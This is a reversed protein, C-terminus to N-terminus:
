NISFKKSLCYFISNKLFGHREFDVKFGLKKYFDLAQFDMTSVTAFNCGKKIGYDEVKKMLKSGYGKGRIKDSVRTTTQITRLGNGLFQRANTRGESFM